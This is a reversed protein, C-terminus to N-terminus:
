RSKKLVPSSCIQLYLKVQKKESIKISCVNIDCIQNARYFDYEKHPMFLMKDPHKFIIKILFATLNSAYFAVSYDLSKVLALFHFTVIDFTSQADLRDPRSHSSCYVTVVWSEEVSVVVGIWTHLYLYCPPPPYYKHKM